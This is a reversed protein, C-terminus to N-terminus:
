WPGEGISLHHPQRHPASRQGTGPQGPGPSLSKLLAAATIGGLTFKGALKLFERREILGHAYRDYLDLLKQDFDDATKRTM